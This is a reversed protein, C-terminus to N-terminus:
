NISVNETLLPIYPTQRQMVAFMRHVLKNRIANLVSMKNKGEKVKRIYYQRLEGKAKSAAMAAMHLLKKLKKNAFSSVRDRKQMTGSQNPFPVVGAYCALHKATEFTTFNKTYVIFNLASQLGIGPISRLLKVNEQLQENLQVLKNIRQEVSKLENQLMGLTKAYCDQLLKHKERDYNKSESLQQKLGTITGLLTERVGLLTRLTNQEQSDEKYLVQRDNYRLAYEAIRLADKRDSKGRFDSAAKKIKYANEVWLNFGCEDSVLKLPKSYIGTDECCILVQERTAKFKRIVGSIFSRLKSQENVVIKEVLLKGSSDIVAADIKKKSVDVGIFYIQKM